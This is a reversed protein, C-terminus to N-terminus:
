VLSPFYHNTWKSVPSHSSIGSIPTQDYEPMSEKDKSKRKGIDILLILLKTAEHRSLQNDRLLLTLFSIFDSHLRPYLQAQWFLCFLRTSSHCISSIKLCIRFWHISQAEKLIQNFFLLVPQYLFLLVQKGKFSHLSLIFLKSTLLKHLLHLWPLLPYLIHLSLPVLQHCLLVTWWM